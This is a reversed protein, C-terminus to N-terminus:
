GGASGDVLEAQREDAGLSTGLQQHEPRLQPQEDPEGPRRAPGPQVRQVRRLAALLRTPGIPFRKMLGMDTNWYAAGRESNRPANGNGNGNQLPLGNTGLPVTYYGNNTFTQHKDDWTFSGSPNINPRDPGANGDGNTDVGTRITFTPGSQAQTVGTIQWGGFAQAM